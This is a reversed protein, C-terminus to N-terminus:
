FYKNSRSTYQKVKFYVLVLSVCSSLLVLSLVVYIFFLFPRSRICSVFCRATVPGYWCCSDLLSRRSNPGVLRQLSGGTVRRRGGFMVPVGGGGDFFSEAIDNDDQLPEPQGTHGEFIKNSRSTEMVKLYSAQGRVM